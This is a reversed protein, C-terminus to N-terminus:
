KGAELALCIFFQDLIVEKDKNKKLVIPSCNLTANIRRTEMRAFASASIMGRAPYYEPLEGPNNL